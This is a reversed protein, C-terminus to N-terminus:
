AADASVNHNETEHIQNRNFAKGMYQVFNNNIRVGFSPAPEIQELKLDIMEQVSGVFAGLVTSIDEMRAEIIIVCTDITQKGSPTDFQLRLDTVPAMKNHSNMYSVKCLDLFNPIPTAQTYELVEKVKSIDTAFFEGDLKFVLYQITATQTMNNNEAENNM